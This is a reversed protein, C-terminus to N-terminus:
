FVNLLIDCILLHGLNYTHVKDTMGEQPVKVFHLRTIIKPRYLAERIIHSNPVLRLTLHVEFTTNLSLKM